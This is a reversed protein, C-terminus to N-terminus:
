PDLSLDNAQRLLRDIDLNGPCTQTADIERHGVVHDRHLPISWRLGLAWLLEAGAAYQADPRHVGTPDGNDIFEIGLTVPNPDVGVPLFAAAPNRATGAHRATDEEAVVTALTGDLAVVFHASVESEPRDFWGLTGDFSGVSTHLV